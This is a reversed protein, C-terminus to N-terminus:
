REPRCPDALKGVIWRTLTALLALAAWVDAAVLMRWGASTSRWALDLQAALALAVLAIYTTAVLLLKPGLSANLSRHAIALASGWAILAISGAIPIAPSIQALLVVALGGGVLAPGQDRSSLIGISQNSHEPIM